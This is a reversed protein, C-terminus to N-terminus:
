LTVRPYLNNKARTLAVYELRPDKEIMFFDRESAMVLAANDAEDGKSTHISMVRVASATINGNLIPRNRLYHPVGLASLGTSIRQCTKKTPAMILWEEHPSAKIRQLLDKLNLSVKQLTPESMQGDCAAPRIMKEEKTHVAGMKETPLWDKTQRNPFVMKLSPMAHEMVYDHASKSVRWSQTLVETKGELKLFATPSAGFPVMIAQDDDGAVIVETAKSMLRNVLKWQLDSLDQAEDVILLDFFPIHELFADSQANDIVDDFDALRNDSKFRNYENLYSTILDLGDLKVVQGRQKEFFDQLRDRSTSSFVDEFGGQDIADALGICRARSFSQIALPTHDPREEVSSADGLKMWVSECRIEPDFQRLKEADLVSKGMLGGIRTALSHLTSFNPFDMVSFDRDPFSAKSATIVRDRAVDAANNTFSLFAIKDTHGGQKIHEIVTSILKTTKGTGPPGFVKTCSTPACVKKQTFKTVSLWWDKSPWKIPDFTETTVLGGILAEAHRKAEESQGYRLKRKPRHLVAGSSDALNLVLNDGHIEVSKLTFPGFTM